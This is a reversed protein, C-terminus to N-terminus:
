ILLNYRNVMLDNLVNGFFFNFRFTNITINIPKFSVIEGSIVINDIGHILNPHVATM